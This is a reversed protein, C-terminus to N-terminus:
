FGFVSYIPPDLADQLGVWLPSLLTASVGFPDSSRVPVLLVQFLNICRLLLKLKHGLIASCFFSHSETQMYHLSLTNTIM